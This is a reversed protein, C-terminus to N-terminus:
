FEESFFHKHSAVMSFSIVINNSSDSDDDRINDMMPRMLEWMILRQDREPIPLKSM